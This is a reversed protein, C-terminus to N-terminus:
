AQLHLIRELICRGSVPLQESESNRWTGRGNGSDRGEKKMNKRKTM